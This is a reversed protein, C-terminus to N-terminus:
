ETIKNRYIVSQTTNLCMWLWCQGRSEIKFKERTSAPSRRGKLLPRPMELAAALEPQLSGILRSTGRHRYHCKSLIIDSPASPLPSQPHIPPSAGGQRGGVETEKHWVLIYAVEFRDNRNKYKGTEQWTAERTVCMKNCNQVFAVSTYFLTKNIIPNISLLSRWSCSQHLDIFLQLTDPRGGRVGPHPSHGPPWQSPQKDGPRSVQLRYVTTM